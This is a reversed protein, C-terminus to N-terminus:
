KVINPNRLHDNTSKIKDLEMDLQEKTIYPDPISDGPYPPDNILDLQNITTGPSRLYGKISKIKDLERDLISDGPHPSDDVLDSANDNTDDDLERITYPYLFKHSKRSFVLFCKACYINEKNYTFFHNHNSCLEINYKYKYFIENTYVLPCNRCYLIDTNEISSINHNM